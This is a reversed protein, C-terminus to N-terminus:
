YVARKVLKGAPIRKVSRFRSLSHANKQYWSCPPPNRPTTSSFLLPSPRDQSWLYLTYVIYLNIGRTMSPKSLLFGVVNRHHSPGLAVHRLASGFARDGTTWLTKSLRGHTCGFAVITSRTGRPYLRTRTLTEAVQKRAVVLGATGEGKLM